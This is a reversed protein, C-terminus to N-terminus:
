SILASDGLVYLNLYLLSIFCHYPSLLLNFQIGSCFFDLLYVGIPWVHTDGLRRLYFTTPDRQALGFVAVCVCGVLHTHVFIGCDYVM